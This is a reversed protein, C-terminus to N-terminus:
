NGIANGFGKAEIRGRILEIPVGQNFKPDQWAPDGYHHLAVIDWDMTFCPSGSSGSDTNTTYRVRTGKANPGIIAQTDMALKMPSGKPHQLILLPADKPLPQAAAPLVIWGRKTGNVVENGVPTALRLLAYDLEEATPPPNDPTKTTEAPAYLSWTVCGDAHLPVLQGPQQAGNPLKIFDFRCGLEALKGAGKAGEIVHWNTLVTDPGVLFATGLANGGQEVRCVRREIQILKETWVRVDLNPLHPRVNRQFGPALATTPAEPQLTGKTQASLVIGPDAVEIVAEPSLQAILARLEPRGARRVYVYRLFVATTGLQELTNLLDIITPRLPKGQGVYEVYLRDGTSAHVFSELDNFSLAGALSRSLRDIDQGSLAM